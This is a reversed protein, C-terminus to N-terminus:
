MCVSQHHLVASAADCMCYMLNGEADKPFIENCCQPVDANIDRMDEDGCRVKWAQPWHMLYLDVYALGLNALTQELAARHLIILAPM